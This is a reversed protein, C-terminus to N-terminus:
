KTRRSPESATPPPPPGRKDLERIYDMLLERREEEFQELILYRKDNQLTALIEQLHQDSEEILKKTKHTLVKTEKLFNKFEEKAAQLKDRM